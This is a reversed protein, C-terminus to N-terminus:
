QLRLLQKQEENMHSTSAPEDSDSDSASEVKEDEKKPAEAM